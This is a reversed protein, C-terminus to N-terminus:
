NELDMYGVHMHIRGGPYKPNQNHLPTAGQLHGITMDRIDRTKNPTCLNLIPQQRWCELHTPLNNCCPKFM